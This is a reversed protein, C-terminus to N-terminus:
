EVAELKKCLFDDRDMEEFKWANITRPIVRMMRM